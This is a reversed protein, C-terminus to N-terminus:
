RKVKNLTKVTFWLFPGCHQANVDLLFRAIQDQARHNCIAPANIPSTGMDVRLWIPVSSVTGKSSAARARVCWINSTFRNVSIITGRPETTVIRNM